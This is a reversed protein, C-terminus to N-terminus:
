HNLCEPNKMALCGAGYVAAEGLISCARDSDILVPIDGAADRIERYLPYDTWGEINPAWVTGTKVMSIGPVFGSLDSKM